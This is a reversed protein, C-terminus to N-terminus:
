KEGSTLYKFGDHGGMVYLDDGLLACGPARRGCSM